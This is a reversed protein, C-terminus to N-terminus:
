LFGFPNLTFPGRPFSLQDNYGDKLGKLQLLVLWEQHWYPCHPHEEIQQRVWQLNTTIYDKLRHCFGSEFTFPSCYGMLTNM